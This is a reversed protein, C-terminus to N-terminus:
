FTQRIVPPNINVKPAAENEGVKQAAEIKSRCDVLQLEYNAKELAWRRANEQLEAILTNTHAESMLLRQELQFVKSQESYMAQVSTGGHGGQQVSSLQLELDQCKTTLKSLEVQLSQLLHDKEQLLSHQHSHDPNVESEQYERLLARLRVNEKRLVSLTDADGQSQTQQALLLELQTIVNEQQKCIEACKRYKDVKTHLQRILKQQATHADQLEIYQVEFDNKKILTNQLAAVKDQYTTRSESEAVLNEQLKSIKCLLEERSLSELERQSAPTGNVKMQHTQLELNEKQLMANEHRLKLIDQGMQNIAKMYEEERMVGKPAVHVHSAPIPTQLVPSHTVVIEPEILLDSYRPLHKYEPQHSLFQMHKSKWRIVGCIKTTIPLTSHHKIDSTSLEWYVASSSAKQQELSSKHRSSIELMASTIWPTQWWPQGETADAAYINIALTVGTKNATFYPSAPFFFYAPDTSCQEPATNFRVVTVSYNYLPNSQSGGKKNTQREFPNEYGNAGQVRTKSDNSMLQTCLLINKRQMIPNVDMNGVLFELGEFNKFESIAPRYVLSIVINPEQNEPIHSLSSVENGSMSERTYRTHSHVFPTLSSILHSSSFVLTGEMKDAIHLEISQHQSCRLTIPYLIPTVTSHQGDTEHLITDISLNSGSGICAIPRLHESSKSFIASNICHFVVSVTPTDCPLHATCKNENERSILTESNPLLTPQTQFNPTVRFWIKGVFKQIDTGEIKSSLLAVKTQKSIAQKSLVNNGQLSIPFHCSGLETINCAAFQLAANPSSGTFSFKFTPCSGSKRGAVLAVTASETKIEGRAEARCRLDFREVGEIEIKSVAVVLEMMSTAVSGLDCNTESKTESVKTYDLYRRRTAGRIEGQLQLCYCSGWGNLTM